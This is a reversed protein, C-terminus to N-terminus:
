VGSDREDMVKVLPVILWLGNLSRAMMAAHPEPTSPMMRPRATSKAGMLTFITLGPATAVSIKSPAGSAIISANRFSVKVPSNPAGSSTASAYKCQIFSPNIVPLTNTFSPPLTNTYPPSFRFLRTPHLYANSKSFHASPQHNRTGDALLNGVPMKSFEAFARLINYELDLDKYLQQNRDIKAGLERNKKTATSRDRESKDLRKKLDAIQHSRRDQAQRLTTKDTELKNLRDRLAYIDARLGDTYSNHQRNKHPM